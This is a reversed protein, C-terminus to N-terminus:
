WKQGVIVNRPYLDNHSLGPGISALKAVITCLRSEVARLAAEGYEKFMVQLNAGPYEMLIFTCNGSWGYNYVQPVKIVTSALRMNRVIVVIDVFKPRLKLV